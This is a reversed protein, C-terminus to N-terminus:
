VAFVGKFADPQLRLAAARGTRRADHHNKARRAVEGLTQQDGSQIVQGAVAQQAVVKGHDAYRDGLAEEIRRIRLMSRFLALYDVKEM